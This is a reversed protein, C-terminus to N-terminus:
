DQGAGDRMAVDRRGGKRRNPGNGGRSQRLHGGALYEFSSGFAGAFQKAAFVAPGGIVGATVAAIGEVLEDRGDKGLFGRALGAPAGEFADLLGSGPPIVDERHRTSAEGGKDTVGSEGVLFGAPDPFDEAAEAGVAARRIQIPEPVSLGFFGLSVEQGKGADPRLGGLADQHEAQAAFDKGDVCVDVPDRATELEDALVDGGLFGVGDEFREDCGRIAIAKM